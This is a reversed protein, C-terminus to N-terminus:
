LFARQKKLETLCHILSYRWYPITLGFDTKIKAKNMLSYHPRKAPTPYDKTEIPNVQCATQSLEFIAKAFDYWACVGENSYHYIEIGKHKGENGLKVQSRNRESNDVMTLIASALDAAYTPSGVQDYIVNLSDREAGLRLMTKVFNNGFESYVWSTRILAGKPNVSICAQEGKLKTAGYIGQPAVPDTEIYPRHNQGDFVYDTSIHILASDNAKAIDALQKVALHNIQDALEPESEAKDVATYAACNIIVDFQKNKFFDSISKPSALDLQDRGVFTFDYQADDNVIKQLSQGLQGNKGTVLITKSM